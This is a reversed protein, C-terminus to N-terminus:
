DGVKREFLRHLCRRPGISKNAVSQTIFSPDLHGPGVARVVALIFRRADFVAPLAPHDSRSVPNPRRAYPYRIVPLQPIVLGGVFDSSPTESHGTTNNHGEFSTLFDFTLM